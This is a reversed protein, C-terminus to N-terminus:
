RMIFWIMGKIFLYSLGLVVVAECLMGGISDNGGVSSPTSGLDSGSRYLETREVIYNNEGLKTVKTIGSSTQGPKLDNNGTFNPDM